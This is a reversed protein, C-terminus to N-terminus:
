LGLLSNVIDLVPTFVNDVMGEVVGSVQEGLGTLPSNAGQGGGSGALPGATPSTGEAPVQSPVFDALRGLIDGAMYAKAKSSKPQIRALYGLTEDFLASIYSAIGVMGASGDVVQSTLSVSVGMVSILDGMLPELSQALSLTTHLKEDLNSISVNTEELLPKQGSMLVNLDDVVALQRTLLDNTESLLDLKDNLASVNNKVEGMVMNMDKMNGLSDDIMNFINYRENVGELAESGALTYSVMVMGVLVLAAAAAILLKRIKM